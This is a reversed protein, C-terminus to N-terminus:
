RRRYKFCTEIFNSAFKPSAGFNIHMYQALTNHELWGDKEANIGSGHKMVYAFSADAPVGELKSHHFEHGKITAGPKALINEKIVSAYTYSLTLKTVMRTQCDLVGVMSHSAGGFGTISRTLYMLGGCEAFVPLGDEVKKKISSRFSQNSELQEAFIEPFGGGIYLADFEDSVVRDHVPSFYGIEAGAASLADLADQYYFNFAEDYAVGIRVHRTRTPKKLQVKELSPASKAVELVESLDVNSKVFESIKDLRERLEPKETTPVLGLHREPLGIGTDRPLAGIVPVATTSEIANGCMRAHKEGSVRNLIVGAINLRKDLAKCGEVIAAATGAMGWVDVVLIVPSKLLRAISATSGNGRKGEIGDFLGMVGEIVAIDCGSANQQFLGLITKEPLMWADLNRSKRNTVMTHYTPDIFDPGIKFGQVKLGTSSLAGMLGTAVTTKGCGSSVGAIVVRPLDM